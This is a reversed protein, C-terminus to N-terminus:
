EPGSDASGIVSDLTPVGPADLPLRTARKERKVRHSVLLCLVAPVSMVFAVPWKM